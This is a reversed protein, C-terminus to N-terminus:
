PQRPSGAPGRESYCRRLDKINSFGCRFLPGMFGRAVRSRVPHGAAAPEGVLLPLLARFEIPQDPIAAGRVDDPRLAFPVPVLLVTLRGSRGLTQLVFPLEPIAAGRVHGYGPTCADAPMIGHGSRGCCAPRRSRWTDPARQASGPIAAGRIGFADRWITCTTRATANRRSRCGWSSRRSTHRADWHGVQGRHTPGAGAPRVCGPIAAGRIGVRRPETRPPSPFALGM